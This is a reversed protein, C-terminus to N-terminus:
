QVTRMRAVTKLMKWRLYRMVTMGVIPLYVNTNTQKSFLVLAAFMGVCRVFLVSRNARRIHKSNQGFDPNAPDYEAQDPLEKENKQIPTLSAENTYFYMIFNLQVVGTRIPTKVAFSFKLTHLMAFANNSLYHGSTTVCRFFPRCLLRSRLGYQINTWLM